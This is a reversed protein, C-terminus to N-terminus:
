HHWVISVPLWCSPRSGLVRLARFSLLSLTRPGPPQHRPHIERVAFIKLDDNQDGSKKMLLISRFNTVQESGCVLWSWISSHRTGRSVENWSPDWLNRCLSRSGYWSVQHNCKQYVSIGQTSCGFLFSYVHCGLPWATETCTLLTELEQIGWITFSSLWRQYGSFRPNSSFNM